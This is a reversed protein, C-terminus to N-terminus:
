AYGVDDFSRFVTFHRLRDRVINFASVAFFLNNSANLM